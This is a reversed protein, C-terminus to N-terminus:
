ININTMTGEPLSRDVHMFILVCLLVHLYLNPTETVSKSHKEKDRERHPSETLGRM